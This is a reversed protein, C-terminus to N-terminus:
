EGEVPQRLPALAALLRENLPALTQYGEPVTGRYLPRVTGLVEYLGDRTPKRLVERVEGLAYAYDRARGRWGPNEMRDTEAEMAKVFEELIEKLEDLQPGRVEMNLPREPVPADDDQGGRVRDLLDGWWGM